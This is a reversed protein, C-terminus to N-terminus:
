SEADRFSRLHDRLSQMASRIRTKVTGLPLALQEAIRSHSMGEFYALEIVDRHAEDLTSLAGSVTRRHEDDILQAEQEYTDSAGPNEGVADMDVEKKRASYGKSRTRDIALRRAIAVMWALATGRSRDFTGAHDWIRLFTDQMVEEADTNDGVIRRILSYLLRGHRDYLMAMAAEDRDRVLELLVADAEAESVM